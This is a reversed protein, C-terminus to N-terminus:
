RGVSTCNELNLSRVKERRIIGLIDQAKFSAKRM